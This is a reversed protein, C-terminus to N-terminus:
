IPNRNFFSILKFESETYYVDNVWYEVEGDHWITSPGDTRHQKGHVYYFEAGNNFTMAPGDERHLQGNFDLYKILGTKSVTKM